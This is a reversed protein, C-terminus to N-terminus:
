EAKERLLYKLVAYIEQVDPQEAHYKSEERLSICLLAKKVTGEFSLFLRKVILPDRASSLLQGSFGTCFCGQFCM